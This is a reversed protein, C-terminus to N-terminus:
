EALRSIESVSVEYAVRRQDSGGLNKIYDRSQLRGTLRVKDGVNWTSVLRANQGWAICPLYDSRGYPRNVALLLDTIERGVPTLRHTPQRCITGTLEARNEWVPESGPFLSRAFVTIVLRSGQGSRNNFTRIEGEVEVLGARSPKLDPLLSERLIVNLRDATGSLRVTEIPFTYFVDDRSKHSYVPEALPTGRLFIRNNASEDM